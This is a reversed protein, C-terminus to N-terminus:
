SRPNSPAEKEPGASRRSRPTAGPLLTVSDAAQGTVGTPHYVVRVRSGAELGAPMATTREIAFPIHHGHDAIRVVLTRPSTSVVTGFTTLEAAELPSLLLALSLLLAFSLAVRIRM